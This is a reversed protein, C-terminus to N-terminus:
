ASVPVGSIVDLLGARNIERIKESRRAHSADIGQRMMKGFQAIQTLKWGAL